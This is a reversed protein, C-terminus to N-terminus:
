SKKKEEPFKAPRTKLWQAKKKALWEYNEFQTPHKLEKQMGKVLPESKNWMMAFFDLVPEQAIMKYYM